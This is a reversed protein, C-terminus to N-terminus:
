GHNLFVNLWLNDIEAFIADRKEYVPERKKSFERDLEEMKKMYEESGELFQATIDDLAKDTEPDLHVNGVGSNFGEDVDEETKAKKAM